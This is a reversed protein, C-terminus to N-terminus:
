LVRKKIKSSSKWLWSINTLSSHTTQFTQQYEQKNFCCLCMNSSYKNRLLTFLMKTTNIIAKLYQFFIEVIKQSTVIIQMELMKGMMKKFRLLWCFLKDLM